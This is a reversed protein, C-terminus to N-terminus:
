RCAGPRGSYQARRAASAQPSVFLHAPRYMPTPKVVARWKAQAVPDGNLAAAPLRLRALFWKDPMRRQRTTAM